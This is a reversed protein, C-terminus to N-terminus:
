RDVMAMREESYRPGAVQKLADDLIAMEGADLTIGAAAVNQELYTRRRTGPITVIDDGRHMAWALAIQGPTVRRAEALERVIAAARM